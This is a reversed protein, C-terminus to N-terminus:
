IGAGAALQQTAHWLYEFFNSTFANPNLFPVPIDPRALFPSLVWSLESGTLGTTLLWGLLVRNAVQNSGTLRCLLGHLRINGLIGALAIVSTNALLLARYTSLASPATPSPSQWAFFAVVPCLGLLILSMISLSLLVCVSVQLASLRAGLVQALMVNLLSSVLVLGVIFIPMKLASYAAQELGRWAGFTAGYGAAGVLLWLGASAVVPGLQRGSALRDALSDDARCLAMPSHWIM